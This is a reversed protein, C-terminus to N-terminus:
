NRLTSNKNQGSPKRGLHDMGIQKICLKTKTVYIDFVVLSIQVVFRNDIISARNGLFEFGFGIEDFQNIQNFPNFNFFVKIFSKARLIIM